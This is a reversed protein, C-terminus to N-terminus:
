FGWIGVAIAFALVGIVGVLTPLISLATALVLRQGRIALVIIIGAFIPVLVVQFATLLGLAGDGVNLGHIAISPLYNAWGLLALVAMAILAYRLKNTAAFAVAALAVIPHLAIKAKIIGGGLGPGPIQSTDGFLIPLDRVGGVLELIAAALLLARLWGPVGAVLVARSFDTDAM